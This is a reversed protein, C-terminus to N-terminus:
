PTGLLAKVKAASDLDLLQTCVRIAEARAKAIEGENVMTQVLKKTEEASFKPNADVKDLVKVVAEASLKRTEEATTSGVSLREVCVVYAVMKEPWCVGINKEPWVYALRGPACNMQKSNEQQVLEIIHPGSACGAMSAVVFAAGLASRFTNM